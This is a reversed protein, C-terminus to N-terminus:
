RRRAVGAALLPKAAPSRRCPRLRTRPAISLRSPHSFLFAHLAQACNKFSL